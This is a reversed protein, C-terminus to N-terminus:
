NLEKIEFGVSELDRWFRPYSKKVVSPDQVIIQSLLALPAISMAMRHDDYTPFVINESIKFCAADLIWSDKNFHFDVGLKSLHHGLAEERDCEKYKLSELGTFEILGETVSALLVAYTMSSDPFQAFNMKDPYVVESKDKKTFRVGDNEEQFRVAVSGVRFLLNKEKQINNLRLGPFFLDVEDALHVMSFWYYFSTWDPEIKFFEGDFRQKKNVRLFSGQKWLSFGMRRMCSITLGVYSYSPMNSNIRITFEGKIKPSILLLASVFQSSKADRLDIENQHAQLECGTISLPAFGEENLYEIEAGLIRLADVLQSIPRKRLRESGDIKWNGLTCSCYAVMFRFVTGADEVDLDGSDSALLKQLVISDNAESVNELQLNPEYLKQLILMRNSISKSSPLNIIGELVKTPHHISIM